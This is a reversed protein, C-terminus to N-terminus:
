GRRVMAQLWDVIESRVEAPELVEAHDAFGLLWSRFVLRNTCPVRVVISGDDRAAIVAADGVERRVSSARDASVLVSAQATGAESGISQVSAEFTSAPDFDPPPPTSGPGVVRVDGEVRDVRYVRQQSAAVDWGIVYWFGGRSLVSWPEVTRLKDHYSFEVVQHQNAAELLPILNDSTHLTAAFVGQDVDFGVGLKLAAQQTWDPGVHVAALAVQLARREDDELGLDQMEYNKRDIWYATKGADSGALVKQSIEIGVERLVSKDRDFAARRADLREPYQGVMRFYIDEFTLPTRTELLLAVLNTLRELPDVM